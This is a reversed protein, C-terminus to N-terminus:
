GNNVGKSKRIHERWKEVAETLTLRRFPTTLRKENADAGFDMWPGLSDEPEYITIPINREGYIASPAVNIREALELDRFLLTDRLLEISRGAEALASGKPNPAFRDDVGIPNLLIVDIERAGLTIAPGMPATAMVGGDAYRGKDAGHAVPVLCSRWVQEAAIAPATAKSIHHARLIGAQLDTVTAIVAQGDPVTRGAALRKITDLAPAMDYIGRRKGIAVLAKDFWSGGRYIDRDRITRTWQNLAAGPGMIAGFYSCAAGISEGSWISWSRGSKQIRVMQALAALGNAGGGSVVIARTM